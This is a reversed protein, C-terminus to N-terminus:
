LPILCNVSLATTRHLFGDQDLKNCGKNKCKTTFVVNKQVSFVTAASAAEQDTDKM